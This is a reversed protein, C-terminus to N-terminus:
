RSRTNYMWKMQSEFLAMAAFHLIAMLGTHSKTGLKIPYERIM